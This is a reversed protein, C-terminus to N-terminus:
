RRPRATWGARWSIAASAPWRRRDMLCKQRLTTRVARASIPRARRARSTSRASPRQCYRAARATLNLGPFLPTSGAHWCPLLLRPSLEGIWSILRPGDEDEKGVMCQPKCGPFDYFYEKFESEIVGRKEEIVLVEHKDKVFELADHACRGCWASRTSTSGSAGRGSSRHRPAAVGGDSGCPGQRDDRHRLPCGSRRLRHSRDSQRARLGPDRSEEGRAAGRDAAGAPRALPLAPRGAAVAFDPTVFLAPAAARGSRRIRGDGLDGQLRGVHRLLAVACLRLPRLSRIRRREGPHLIPMFWSLFALDSQHPMSSSVCGHDDGAVVLVGGRPSSGYANGHKLADGSRDVGPGKGYWLGFVGDVERDAQTEVQQSGLVATAALDENVAPLFEIRRAETTGHHAVTRSRRRRAALRSLRLRLRRHQAGRRPRTRVQELAIRVIAQTGTLFVRGDQRDYRDSLEYTDLSSIADM